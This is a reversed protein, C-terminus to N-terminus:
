IHFQLKRKTDRYIKTNYANPFMHYFTYKYCGNCLCMHKIDAIAISGLILAGSALYKYSFMHFINMKKQFIMEQM